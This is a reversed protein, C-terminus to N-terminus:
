ERDNFNANLLDLLVLREFHRQDLTVDAARLQSAHRLRNHRDDVVVTFGVM